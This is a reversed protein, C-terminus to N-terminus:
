DVQAEDAVRAVLEVAFRVQAVIVRENGRGDSASGNDKTHLAVAGLGECGYPCFFIYENLVNTM